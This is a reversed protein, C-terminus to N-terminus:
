VRGDVEAGVDSEALASAPAGSGLRAVLVLIGASSEDVPFVVASTSGDLGVAEGLRSDAEVEFSMIGVVLASATTSDCSISTSCAPGPVEAAGESSNSKSIAFSPSSCSGSTSGSDDFRGESSFVAGGDSSDVDWGGAVVVLWKGSAGDEGFFM